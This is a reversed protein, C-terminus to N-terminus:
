KVLADSQTHEGKTCDHITFMFQGPTNQILMALNQPLSFLPKCVATVHVALYNATKAHSFSVVPFLM